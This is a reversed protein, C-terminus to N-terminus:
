VTQDIFGFLVEGYIRLNCAFCGRAAVADAIYLQLLDGATFALDESKTVYTDLTTTQEIGHAVGGLYIKGMVTDGAYGAKLDFNVRYTGTFPVTIEKKKTYANIITTVEADSSHLLDDTETVNMGNVADMTYLLGKDPIRSDLKDTTVKVAGVDADILAHEAQLTTVDTARIADVVTDVTAILANTPGFDQAINYNNSMKGDKM